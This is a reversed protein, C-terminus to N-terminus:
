GTHIKQNMPMDGVWPFMPNEEVTHKAKYCAYYKDYDCLPHSLREHTAFVIIITVSIGENAIKKTPAIPASNRLLCNSARHHMTMGKILASSSIKELEASETTSIEMVPNFRTM